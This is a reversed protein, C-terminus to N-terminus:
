GSSSPGSIFVVKVTGKQAIQDAIQAIKRHQLDENMRIFTSIDPSGCITNMAGLCDVKLISGWIKYERFVSFLLPHDVFPALKLFNASLPFRLLMGREGYPRLEWISLVQTYPLLPEYTIDLFDGCRYPELVPDNRYELLKTTAHYGRQTFYDVASCYAIKEQKIPAGSHIIDQLKESIRTVDARDLAFYQAFNFYFGVVLAHGIVLRREPFLIECAYALLYSLTHRYMRKGVSSFLFVPEIIGDVEVLAEYSLIENNLRLAVVPNQTYELQETQLGLCSGLVEKVPIGAQVTHLHEKYTLTITRAM